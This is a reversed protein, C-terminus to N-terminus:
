TSSFFIDKNDTLEDDPRQVSMQEGGDTLSGNITVTQLESTKHKWLTVM